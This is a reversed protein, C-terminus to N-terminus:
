RDPAVSSGRLMMADRRLEAQTMELLAPSSRIAAALKSLITFGILLYIVGMAALGWAGIHPWLLWVVCLSLAVVGCLLLLLGVLGVALTKYFRRGALSVELAVLELRSELITLGTAALRRGSDFLGPDGSM